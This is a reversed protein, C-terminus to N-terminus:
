EKVEMGCTTGDLFEFDTFLELMTHSRGRTFVTNSDYSTILVHHEIDKKVRLWISMVYKENPVASFYKNVFAQLFEGTDAFPRYKKEPKIRYYESKMCFDPDKKDFWGVWDDYVPITKGEALAQIFPLMEKAKEQTM